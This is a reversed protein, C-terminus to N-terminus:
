AYAMARLNLDTPRGVPVSAPRTGALLCRLYAFSAACRDGVRHAARVTHVQPDTYQDNIGQIDVILLQRESAEFSFHSFAQPTNRETDSVHGFNNNHKVYDGPIYREVGCM